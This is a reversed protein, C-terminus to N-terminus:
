GRRHCIGGGMGRILQSEQPRRAFGIGKSKHLLRARPRLEDHVVVFEPQLPFISVEKASAQHIVHAPSQFVQLDTLNEGNSMSEHHPQPFSSVRRQCGLPQTTYHPDGIKGGDM